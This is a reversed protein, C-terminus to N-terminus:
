LLDFNWSLASSEVTSLMKIPWDWGTTYYVKWPFFILVRNAFAISKITFQKLLYWCTVSFWCQHCQILTRPPSHSLDLTQIQSVCQFCFVQVYNRFCWKVFGNVSPSSFTNSNVPHQCLRHCSPKTFVLPCTSASLSQECPCPPLNSFHELSSKPTQKM